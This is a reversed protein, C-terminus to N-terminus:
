FLLFGFRENSIFSYGKPNHVQSIEKIDSNITEKSCFKENLCTRQSTKIDFVVFIHFDSIRHPKSIKSPKANHFM